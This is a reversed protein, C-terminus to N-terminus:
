PNSNISKWNRKNLAVYGLM